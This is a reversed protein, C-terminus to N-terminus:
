VHREGERLSRLSEEQRQRALVLGKRVFGGAYKEKMYLYGTALGSIIMVLLCLLVIFLPDTGRRRKGAM